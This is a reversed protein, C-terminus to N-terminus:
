VVPFSALFLWTSFGISIFFLLRNLLAKKNNSIILFAFLISIIIVPIHSYYLLTPPNQSFVGYQPPPVDCYSQQM